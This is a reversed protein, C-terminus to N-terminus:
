ALYEKMIRKWDSGLMVKKKSGERMIKLEIALKM